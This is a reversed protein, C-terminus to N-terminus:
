VSREAAPKTTCWLRWLDLWLCWMMLYEGLCGITQQCHVPCPIHRARGVKFEVILTEMRLRTSYSWGDELAEDCGHDSRLRTRLYRQVVACCLCPLRRPSVRAPMM